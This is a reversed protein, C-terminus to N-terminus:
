AHRPFPTRAKALTFARGRRQDDLCTLGRLRKRDCGNARHIINSYPRDALRLRSLACCYLAFRLRSLACCYLAFRLRSLACCYLIVAWWLARATGHATM